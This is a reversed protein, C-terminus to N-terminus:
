LHLNIEESKRYKKLVAAISSCNILFSAPFCFGVLISLVLVSFVFLAEILTGNFIDLEIEFICFFAAFIGIAALIALSYVGTKTIAQEIPSKKMINM